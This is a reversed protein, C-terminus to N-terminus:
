PQSGWNEALGAFDVLNVTGDPVSDEAIQGPAGTWLWRLALGKLGEFDSELPGLELVSAASHNIPAASGSVRATVHWVIRAPDIARSREVRFTCTDLGSASGGAAVESADFGVNPDIATMNDSVEALELSIEEIPFISVNRVVVECEYEFVSREVRERRVVVFEAEVPNFEDAGMDVRGLMVRAEGDMDVDNAGAVFNPDGANICPSSALLHYDGEVWFDDNADGATGNPDWHGPDALCPDADINGEGSWGGQVNSYTMVLALGEENAIHNPRNESLICNKLNCMGDKRNCIAGGTDAFNGAFTCNEVSLSGYGSIIAGGLGPRDLVPMGFASNGTFICDTVATTCNSSCLAGGSWASNGTFICDTLATTCYSSFLAGGSWSYCNANFICNELVADTKHLFLAGGANGSNKSLFCDILRVSGVYAFVAGGDSGSYNGIITCGKLIPSATVSVLGGGASEGANEIFSCNTLIPQGQSVFMGGSFLAANGVFDCNAITPGGGIILMGAGMDNLGPGDAMGGTVTVGDLVASADAASGSVVHYTNDSRTSEALL